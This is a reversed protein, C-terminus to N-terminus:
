ARCFTYWFSPESSRVVRELFQVPRKRRYWTQSISLPLSDRNTDKDENGNGTRLGVVPPQVVLEVTLEEGVLGLKQQGANQGRLTLPDVVDKDVAGRAEGQGPAVEAVGPKEALLSLLCSAPRVARGEEEVQVLRRRQASRITPGKLVNLASM